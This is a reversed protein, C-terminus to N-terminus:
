RFSFNIKLDVPIRDTWRSSSTASAILLVWYKVRKKKQAKSVADSLCSQNISENCFARQKGVIYLKYFIVSTNVEAIYQQPISDNKQENAKTSTASCVMASCWRFNFQDRSHNKHKFWLTKNIKKQTHHFNFIFLNNISHLLHQQRKYHYDNWLEEKVRKCQM